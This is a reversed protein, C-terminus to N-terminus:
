KRQYEIFESVLHWDESNFCFLNKISLESNKIFFLILMFTSISYSISSACAAGIIKYNPILLFDFIITGLLGSFSVIMNLKPLGIGALYSALINAISFIIIGPLLCLFPIISSRFVEGYFIPVAYYIFVALTIAALFSLWFSIRTIQAVKTAIELNTEKSTAIKPLLVTALSNSILWVLQALSTSLSYIGVQQLESLFSVIFIDLRYNLFQCVNGLYCPLSYKIVEQLRSQSTLVNNDSYNKIKLNILIYLILCVCSIIILNFFLYHLENIRIKNLQLLIAGITLLSLTIIRSFLDLKNTQIIEQLGILVSRWYNNISTILFLLLIIAISWNKIHKPIFASAYNTDQIL